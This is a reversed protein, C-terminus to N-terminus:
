TNPRPHNQYFVLALVRAIKQIHLLQQDSLHNSSQRSEVHIRNDMVEMRSINLPILLVKLHIVVIPCKRHVRPVVFEQSEVNLVYWQYFIPECFKLYKVFKAGGDVSKM